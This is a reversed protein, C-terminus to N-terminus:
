VIGAIDAITILTFSPTHISRLRNSEVPIFLGVLSPFCRWHSVLPATRHHLLASDGSHRKDGPPFPLAPRQRSSFSGLYIKIIHNASSICAELTTSTRGRTVPFSCSPPTLPCCYAIIAHPHSQTSQPFIRQKRLNRRLTFHSM